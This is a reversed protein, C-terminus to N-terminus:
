KRETHGEREGDEREGAVRGWSGSTSQSESHSLCQGLYLEYTVTAGGLSVMAGSTLSGSGMGQSRGQVRCGRPSWPGGPVLHQRGTLPCHQLRVSDM